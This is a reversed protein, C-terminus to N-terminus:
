AVRMFLTASEPVASNSLHLYGLCKWTGTLATESLIVSDSTNPPYSLTGAARLKAVSADVEDNLFLDEAFDTRNTGAFVVAGVGHGDYDGILTGNPAITTM